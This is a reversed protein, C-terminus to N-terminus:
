ATFLNSQAPSRAASEFPLSHSGKLLSILAREHCKKPSLLHCYFCRIGLSAAKKFHTTRHRGPSSAVLFIFSLYSGVCLQTPIKLLSPQSGWQALLWGSSLWFFLFPTHPRLCPSFKAQFNERFVWKGRHKYASGTRRYANGTRNLASKLWLIWGVRAQATGGARAWWPLAWGLVKGPQQAQLQAGGLWPFSCGTDPELLLILLPFKKWGPLM